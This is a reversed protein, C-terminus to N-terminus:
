KNSFTAIFKIDALVIKLFFPSNALIALNFYGCDITGKLYELM